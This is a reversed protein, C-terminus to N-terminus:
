DEDESFYDTDIRKIEVTREVRVGVGYQIMLRTLQKGDILIIKQSVKNAYEIAPKSFSSTTVFVGKSAVKGILAGAFQQIRERGIPNDAAYRKAQLYVVDLGLPDENVIGDIGEDGSKGLSQVVRSRSGGYGMSVILDVVLREFFVPSLGYVRELIQSELSNLIQGEAQQIAEEPTSKTQELGADHIENEAAAVDSVKPTIFAIFEPFQRLVGNDIRDPYKALLQKGRNTIEFHARRTRRIAGAKDLYTRAWHVRDSLITKQGSPLLQNAEENSLKLEQGVNTIAQRINKEAGDAAYALLPRMMSQYDPIAMINIELALHSIICLLALAFRADTFDTVPVPQSAFGRALAASRHFCFVHIASDLGAM